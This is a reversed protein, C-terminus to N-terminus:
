DSRLFKRHRTVRLLLLMGPVAILTCAVFFAEWGMNKAMWGTPASALVRPVGMLSSLLAYQTASFRKNTLSAMFAVYASTGLGSAFNEFAVVGTLVPISKGAQALVSFGLTSVMQLFGFVWLSRNLGLKIIWLGGAVGGFITAWLGFVKAVASYETKTFGLSLIFPTTMASAMSDGIKYLLVFALFELAGKHKFYDVFPEIVASQISRPPPGGSEPEPAFVTTIIGVAMMAAMILYVTNWPLHDALMLAFAGSVLMAIRYGNVFLSSGLGLEEEPLSDRRYADLVIDQSASFLTVCLAVFAVAAPTATPNTLSFAAIAIFLGIQTLLMWGRRRGGLRQSLRRGLLFRFSPTYRDMLPAWLFKLTYPLGVLAFIGIVTLDVKSDTMWAQLTGGTLLLPLGSSFGTLFMVLMRASFFARWVSKQPKKNSPTM